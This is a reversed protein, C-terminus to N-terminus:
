QLLKIFEEAIKNRDYHESVLRLANERASIRFDKDIKLKKIAQSLMQVDEPPSVLGLKNRLILSSLSSDDHVTAIIPLGCALYELSKVPLSNKWLVNSDYPIVGVDAASLIEAIEENVNKVGLYKVSEELHLRKIQAHMPNLGTGGGLIVLKINPNDDILVQIAEILIDLRYYGGIHGSYVLLFDNNSYGIRERSMQKDYPKFINVDAGNPILQINSISREELASKLAETVTVVLKSGRYQKTSCSRLWKLLKRSLSRPNSMSILFDEWEDRYDTIATAGIIRAMMYCGITNGTAPVSIVVFDPREKIFLLFAVFSSIVINFIISVSNVVSISPFYNLVKIGNWLRKGAYKVTKPTFSGIIAVDYGRRKLYEAFFSVRSWAAGPFPITNLLIFYVKTTRV